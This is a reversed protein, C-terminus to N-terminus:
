TPDLPKFYARGACPACLTRGGETIERAHRIPVGCERCIAEGGRYGPLDSESVDVRVWALDFMDEDPLVRYAEAQQQHRNFIHPFLEFARHRSSDKSIIRVARGSELDVFTAALLGLDAFKLSRRGLKVGTTSAVADALCRDIEVYVIVRKVDVGSLPAEYGLTSLGLLAMRVGVIMGPCLHGHEATARDIHDALDPRDQTPTPPTSTM